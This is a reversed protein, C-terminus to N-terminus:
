AFSAVATQGSSSRGDTEIPSVLRADVVLARERRCRMSSCRSRAAGNGNEANRVNAAICCGESQVSKTSFSRSSQHGIQQNL